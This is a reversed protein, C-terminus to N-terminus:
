NRRIRLRGKQEPRKLGAPAEQGKSRIIAWAEDETVTRQSVVSGIDEVTIPGQVKRCVACGHMIGTPRFNVFTLNYPKCERKDCQLQVAQIDYTTAMFEGRRPNYSIWEYTLERHWNFPEAAFIAYVEDLSYERSFDLEPIPM